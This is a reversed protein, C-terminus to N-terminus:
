KIIWTGNIISGDYHDVLDYAISGGECTNLSYQAIPDRLDTLLINDVSGNFSYLLATNSAIKFGLSNPLQLQPEENVVLPDEKLIASLEERDNTVSLTHWFETDSFSIFLESITEEGEVLQIYLYNGDVAIGTKNNEIYGNGTFLLCYNINPLVKSFYLLFFGV